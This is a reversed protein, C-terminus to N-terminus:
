RRRCIEGGRPSGFGLCSPTREGIGGGTVDPTSHLLLLRPDTRPLATKASGSGDSFSSGFQTAECVKMRQKGQVRGDDEEAGVLGCREEGGVGASRGPAVL